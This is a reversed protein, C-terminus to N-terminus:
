QRLKTRATYQPHLPLLLVSLRWLDTGAISWLAPWQRPRQSCHGTAASVALPYPILVTSSCM